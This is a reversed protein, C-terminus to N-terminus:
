FEHERYILFQIKWKIDTINDKIKYYLNYLKILLNIIYLKM